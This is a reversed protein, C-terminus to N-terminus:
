IDKSKGLFSIHTAADNNLKGNVAKLLNVRSQSAM